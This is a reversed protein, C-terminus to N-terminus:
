DFFPVRPIQNANPVGRRSLERAFQDLHIEDPMYHGSSRSMAEIVGDKVSLKGAAAVDGGALFSSHHFQGITAVDSQAFYIQGEPSMVFIGPSKQSTLLNGSSDHILGDKFTVEYNARETADLYRVNRSADFYVMENQLVQSYREGQAGVASASDLYTARVANTTDAGAFGQAARQEALLPASPVGVGALPGGLGFIGNAFEGVAALGSMVKTDGDNAVVAQATLQGGRWFNNLSNYAAEGMM